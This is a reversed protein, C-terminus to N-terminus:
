TAPLASCVLLLMGVTPVTALAAACLWWPLNTM